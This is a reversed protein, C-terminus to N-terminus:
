VACCSLKALDKDFTQAALKVGEGLTLYPFLTGVLEPVGIGFKIALTAIQITEGGEPAVVQAGLLKNTKADAVLKVLGRTDRAALARPLYELPLVSTKVEHGRELAKRETLGVSAIQPDTFIVEPVVSLDLSTRAGSLANAAALSGGAAALYVLKPRNTVDGAAYIRPNSTRMSEDVVIFGERDLEVGAEKLGLGETNAVRGTAMLVREARFERERGGVIATLVTEGGERRISLAEAGTHIAIGEASLNKEIAASIEPEHDPVLAPSRQVITVRSGLRSMTQALELAIARGGLVLLSEPLAELAMLSTSTLVPTGEIGPIPLIRASAGTAVLVAGARLVRGDDLVVAGDARLGARARLLSISDGYSSLVDIYKKQRLEAVLEDKQRVLAAWDIGEARTGVGAFAPHGARYHAEAARILTKSPVCGVNVCTGGIVGAEVIGVRAGSEAARIAAAVGAGGTGLILLDYDGGRRAEGSRRAEGGLRAEGDLPGAELSHRSAFSAGYGAGRVAELLETPSVESDLEVEAKRSHWGPVRASKVGGVAKLAEAVHHACSPCTMGSIDLEAMDLKENEAM